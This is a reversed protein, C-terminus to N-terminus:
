SGILYLPAITAVMLWFYVIRGGFKDTMMGVPLRFLSGTLIPTAILLGFQTESLTLLEKIPIGIISFMVWVAFCATFAFTNMTLVSLQKRRHSAM